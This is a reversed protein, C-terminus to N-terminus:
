HCHCQELWPSNFVKLEPCSGFHALGGSAPFGSSVQSLHLPVCPINSISASVPSFPLVHDGKSPPNNSEDKSLTHPTGLGGRFKIRRTKTWNGERQTDRTHESHSELHNWIGRAWWRWRVVWVRLKIWPVQFPVTHFTLTFRKYQFVTLSSSPGKKKLSSGNKLAFKSHHLVDTRHHEVTQSLNLSTNFFTFFFSNFPQPLLSWCM